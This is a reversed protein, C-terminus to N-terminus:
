IILGGRINEYSNMELFDLPWNNLYSKMLVQEDYSLDNMENEAIEEFLEKMRIDNINPFILRNIVWYGFAAGVEDCCLDNLNESLSDRFMDFLHNFGAESLFFYKAIKLNLMEKLSIIDKNNIVPQYLDLLVNRLVWEINREVEILSQHIEMFESRENNKIMTEYLDLRIEILEIESNIEVNYVKKPFPVETYRKKLREIKRLLVDIDIQTNLYEQISLCIMEYGMKSWVYYRYIDCCSM